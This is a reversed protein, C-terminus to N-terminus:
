EKKDHFKLEWQNRMNQAYTNDTFVAQYVQSKWPNFDRKSEYFNASGNPFISRTSTLVTRCLNDLFAKIMKITRIICHSLFGRM